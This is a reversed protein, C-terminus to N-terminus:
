NRRNLVQFACVGDGLYVTEHSAHIRAQLARAIMARQWEHDGDVLSRTMCDREHRVVFVRAKEPSYRWAKVAADLLGPTFATQGSQADVRGSDLAASLHREINM